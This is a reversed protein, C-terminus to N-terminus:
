QTKKQANKSLTVHTCFTYKASPEGTSLVKKYRACFKGCPFHLGSQQVMVVKKRKFAAMKSEIAQNSTAKRHDARALLVRTTIKSDWLSSGGTGGRSGSKSKRWGRGCTKSGRLRHIKQRM